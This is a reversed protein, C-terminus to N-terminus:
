VLDDISRGLLETPIDEDTAVDIQKFLSKTIERPVIDEDIGELGALPRHKRLWEHITLRQVVINYTDRKDGYRDVYQDTAIRGLVTCLAGKALNNYVFQALKGFVVMKLYDTERPQDKGRYPREVALTFKCFVKGTRESRVLEPDRTPRGQELVLNM